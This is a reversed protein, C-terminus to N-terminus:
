WRELYYAVYQQQDSHNAAEVTAELDDSGGHVLKYFYICVLVDVYEFKFLLFDKALVQLCSLVVSCDVMDLLIRVKLAVDM